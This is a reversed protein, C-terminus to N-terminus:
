RDSASSSSTTLPTVLTKNEVTEAPPVVTVVEGNPDIQNNAKRPSTSQVEAETEQRDSTAARMIATLKEHALRRTEEALGAAKISEELSLRGSDEQSVREVREESERVNSDEESQRAPEEQTVRAHDEPSLHVKERPTSRTPEGQTTKEHEAATTDAKIDPASQGHLACLKLVTDDQVSVPQAVESALSSTRPRGTGPVSETVPSITMDFSTVKCPAEGQLPSEDLREKSSYRSSPSPLGLDEGDQSPPASPLPITLKPSPKAASDARQRSKTRSEKSCASPIRNITIIRPSALVVDKILAGSLEKRPSRHSENGSLGFNSANASFPARKASGRHKGRTISDKGPTSSRRTLEGSDKSPSSSRAWTEKLDKFYSLARARETQPTGRGSCQSGDVSPTSSTEDHFDPYSPPSKVPSVPRDKGAGTLQSGDKSLSRWKERLCEKFPSTPRGRPYLSSLSFSLSLEKLLAASRDRSTPGMLSAMSRAGVASRNRLKTTISLIDKECGLSRADRTTCIPLPLEKGQVAVFGLREKTCTSSRDKERIRVVSTKPREQLQPQAQPQPQPQSQPQPQPQTLKEGLVQISCKSGYMYQLSSHRHASSSTRPRTLLKSITAGASNGTPTTATTSSTPATEGEWIPTTLSQGPDPTVVMVDHAHGLPGAEAELVTKM